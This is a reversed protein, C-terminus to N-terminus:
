VAEHVSSPRNGQRVTIKMEVLNLLNHNLHVQVIALTDRLKILRTFPTNIETVVTTFIETFGKLIKWVFFPSILVSFLNEMIHQQM